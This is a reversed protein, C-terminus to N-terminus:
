HWSLGKFHNRILAPSLSRHAHERTINAAAMSMSFSTVGGGGTSTCKTIARGSTRYLLWHRQLQQWRDMLTRIGRAPPTVARAYFLAKSRVYNNSEKVGWVWGRQVVEQLTICVRSGWVVVRLILNSNTLYKSKPNTPTLSENAGSERERIMIHWPEVNTCWKMTIFNWRCQRGRAAGPSLDVFQKYFAM